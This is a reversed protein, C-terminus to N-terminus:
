KKKILVKWFGEPQQEMKLVTHGENRVSGPVNQIPQGDDLLIELTQGSRMPTLAIKTKVFNMPCAVGRFDKFVDAQADDQQDVAKQEETAKVNSQGEPSGSTQVEKQEEKQGETVGHFQLSDDMGKYLANLLDALEGILATYPLLDGNQRRVEVLVQYKEPVIGAGIFEKLFGNFVDDDTRPDLGRTVLLMRAESFVIESLLKQRESDTAANELAKRKERITDQDIDIIDFLGASCEAQGYKILSFKEDDDYDFYVDPDESFPAVHGYKNKLLDTVVKGGREAVYQYYDTYEAQHSIVDQLYDEVFAPVNKAAVYGM